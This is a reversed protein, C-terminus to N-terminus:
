TDGFAPPRVLTFIELDGWVAFGSKAERPTRLRAALLVLHVIDSVGEATKAPLGAKGGDGYQREGEADPDVDTQERHDAGKEQLRERHLIRVLEDDDHLAAVDDVHRVAM